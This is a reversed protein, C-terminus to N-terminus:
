MAEEEYERRERQREKSLLIALAGYGLPIWVLHYRSQGVVAFAALTLVAVLALGLLLYGARAAEAASARSRRRGAGALAILTAGLLGGWGVNCLHGLAKRQAEGLTEGEGEEDLVGVWQLIGDEASFTAGLRELGRGAFERPHTRIWQEAKERCQAGRRVEDPDNLVPDTPDRPHIREATNEIYLARAYATNFIPQGFVVYNRALWPLITVGVAALFM